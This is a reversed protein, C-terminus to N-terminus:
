APPVGHGFAPIGVYLYTDPIGKMHTRTCCGSRSAWCRCKSTCLVLLRHARKRLWNMTCVVAWASTTRTLARRPNCSRLHTRAAAWDMLWCLHLRGCARLRSAAWGVIATSHYGPLSPRSRPAVRSEGTWPLKCNDYLGVLVSAQDLLSGAHLETASAVLGGGTLPGCCGM